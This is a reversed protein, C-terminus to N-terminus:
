AAPGGACSIRSRCSLFVRGHGGLFDSEVLTGAVRQEGADVPEGFRDAGREAGLAAVDDDFLAPARGGDGLVAHRDGLLNIEGVAELVQAGLHDPLDGALGGVDGTVAGRRGRDQRLGDEPLSASEDGRAHVRHIEFAADLLGGGGDDLLQLLKGLRCAVRRLDGLDAGDRGVAVLGDAPDDGVGHLLNPLFADDGDFLALRELGLEFDDLAHLEVAAVQRGVERGVGFPHLGYEFIRQDQNVLLLDAGHLVQQRQELVHRAVGLRKQDDGLVDLALRQGAGPKPSRRL